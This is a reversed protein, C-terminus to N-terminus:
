KFNPLIYKWFVNTRFLKLMFWSRDLLFTPSRFGSRKGMERCSPQLTAKKSSVLYFVLRAVQYKITFQDIIFQILIIYLMMSRVLLHLPTLCDKRGLSLISRPYLIVAIDFFMYLQQHYFLTGTMPLISSITPPPPLFIIAM